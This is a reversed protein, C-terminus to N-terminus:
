RDQRIGGDTAVGRSPSQIPETVNNNEEPLPVPATAEIEIEPSAADIVAQEWNVALIHKCPGNGFKFAKCSCEVAVEEVSVVHIHEDSNSGYSANEVIVTAPEPVTFEFSEWFARKAVTSVDEDNTHEESM